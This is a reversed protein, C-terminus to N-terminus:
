LFRVTQNFIVTRTCYFTSQAPLNIQVCSHVKVAMRTACNRLASVKEVIKINLKNINLNVRVTYLTFLRKFYQCSRGMEM